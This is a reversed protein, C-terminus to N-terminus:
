RRCLASRRGRLVGGSPQMHWCVLQYPSIVQAALAKFAALHLLFMDPISQADVFAADCPLTKGVIAERVSAANEVSKVRAVVLPSDPFAEVILREEM